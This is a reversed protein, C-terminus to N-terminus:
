SNYIQTFQFYIYLYFFYQPCSQVFYFYAHTHKHTHTYTHDLSQTTEEAVKHNQSLIAEQRRQEHTDSEVPIITRHVVQLVTVSLLPHTNEPTTSTNLDWVHRMLPESINGQMNYSTTNINGLCVLLPLNDLECTVCREKDTNHNYLPSVDDDALGSTVWHELLAHLSNLVHTYTQTQIWLFMQDLQTQGKVPILNQDKPQKFFCSESREEWVARAHVHGEPHVRELSNLVCVHVFTYPSIYKNWNCACMWNRLFTKPWYPRKQKNKFFM